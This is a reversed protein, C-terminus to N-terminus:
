FGEDSWTDQPNIICLYHVFNYSNLVKEFTLIEEKNNSVFTTFPTVANLIPRSM